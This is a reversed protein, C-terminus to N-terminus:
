KIERDPVIQGNHVKYAWIVIDSVEGKSDFTIHKTAGNKNYSSVFDNLATRDTKGAKIGQLFVNASDFAEAGYTGPDKSNAAKFATYFAKAKNPPLCPCTMVTGEAAAKGAGAIFGPDKVGDGVVMTAKVGKDSLQKRLLGAETYYGGFFLADAGSSQVKTVSASFDTQKQQITDTGVVLSGLDKKVIDALGKGYASADDIVFVKKAKMIDKIYKAAAPGQTNDNGLIRHFYKWGNAALTPNTASPTITSLKGEEFLPDAADSEGSFAPGIIGVVKKDDIAKKALAPAQAPDGQSDYNTLTVKCDANAKNYQDVALAAGERISKGLNAADGTLAGFFGLKLGCTKGSSSANDNNSGGCATLLIAGVFVPTALRLLRRDV